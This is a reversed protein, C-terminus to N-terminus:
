GEVAGDGLKFRESDAGLAYDGIDGVDVGHGREGLRDNVSEAGDVDEDVVGAAGAGALVDGVEVEFVELCGEVEVEEAAKLEHACDDGVHALLLPAADDVDGGDVASFVAAVEGVHCCLGGEDAGGLVGGDAEYCVADEDVADGGAGDGM